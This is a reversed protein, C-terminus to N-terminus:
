PESMPSVQGIQRCPITSSIPPHLVHVFQLACNRQPRYNFFIFLKLYSLCNNSAKKVLFYFLHIASNAYPGLAVHNGDHFIFSNIHISVFLLMLRKFESIIICPKYNLVIAGIHQCFAHRLKRCFIPRHKQQSMVMAKGRCFNCLLHSNRLCIDLFYIM